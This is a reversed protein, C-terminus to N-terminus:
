EDCAVGCTQLFSAEDESLKSKEGWISIDSKQDHPLCKLVKVWWWAAVTVDKQVQLVGQKCSKM